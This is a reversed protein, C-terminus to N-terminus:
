KITYVLNVTVLTDTKKNEPNAKSNHRFQYGAKLAFRENIAVQLSTDNQVYTNYHGSEVLTTNIFDTTHTIAYKMEVLGRAILGTENRNLKKNHASRIGPGIQTDLSFRDSNILRTGYGIGFTALRDYTAFKDREYRGTATLQRYEGLQLASGASATYRAATTQRYRRTTGNPMTELYEASARNAFLDLSHVWDGETYRGKLRANLNEAVSNGHSSSFGLEGSSGSWPTPLVAASPDTPENTVSVSNQAFASSTYSLCSFVSVAFVIYRM